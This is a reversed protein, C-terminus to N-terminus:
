LRAAVTGSVAADATVYNWPIFVRDRAARELENLLQQDLSRPNSNSCSYRLYAGGLEVEPPGAAGWDPADICGSLFRRELSDAMQQIAAESVAPVLGSAVYEPWLKAQIELYTRALDRRAGAGPLGRDNKRPRGRRKGPFGQDGAVNVVFSEGDKPNMSMDLDGEVSKVLFASLFARCSDAASQSSIRM